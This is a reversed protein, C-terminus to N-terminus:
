SALLLLISDFPCETLLIHRFCHVFMPSFVTWRVHGGKYQIHGTEGSIDPLIVPYTWDV